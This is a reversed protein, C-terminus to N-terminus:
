RHSLEDLLEKDEELALTLWKQFEKDSAKTKKNSERATSTPVVTIANGDPSTAVIVKQGKKLGLERVIHSPITVAHSNGVRLVTQINM